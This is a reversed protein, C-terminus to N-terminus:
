GGRYSAYSIMIQISRWQCLASSVSGNAWALGVTARVGAVGLVGHTGGLGLREVGSAWASVRADHMIKKGGHHMATPAAIM